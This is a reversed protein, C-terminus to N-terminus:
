RRLSPYANHCFMCEFVIPRRFYQQGPRDYGPSMGWYGGLERYWSVPLEILKGEGTLHLYTRAHDGSGVVYDIEKEIRNAQQGEFGLQYRREYLKGDRELMTYYRDSAKNYLTNHTTFNETRDSANVRHFSRGMGTQRYTAAIDAHCGACISSDVYEAKPQAQVRAPRARYLICMIAVCAAGLGLLVSAAQAM